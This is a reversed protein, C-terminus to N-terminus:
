ARKAIERAAVVGAASAQALGRTVGAGDGAAFLNKVQTELSDSLALRSSYFKVEVGYLLTYRSYVGPALRDLARLMEVIGMLHRYPFVLSLDGPTAEALTPVTMCKALRERTSRRGALLDGLSQVIVGGGLLNALSAIYRGYAIPEKFPETFTKSVLVAFNTNETKNYAHSHGNVTVLGDNNELVVEGNPNMCFTRVKDSFTRSYYIFKAEYFIRTLHDMVAAPLEVRVGIDVPNVATGLGMRQAERALWESGERGPALVVYRAGIAEGDQTVVGRVTGGEVTVEDVLCSTRVEVGHSLLYEQMRQLVEACRGTGMHRIRVPVLKLEALVARRQMEQIEEEHELGYVQEPAGFKVFIRDIYDILGALEKEGVYQELSGGVETSLTLKGDSFAGAGGWGCITSCPSCRACHVDRERAVCRREDINRGKEIILIRLGTKLKVLELAAFIGAPGAGVIVVDYQSNM